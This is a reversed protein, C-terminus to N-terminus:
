KGRKKSKSMEVLRNKAGAAAGKRAGEVINKFQTTNKARKRRNLSNRSLPIYAYPEPKGKKKMDGKAKRSSYESGAATTATRATAKSYGSKVSQAVPRHIGKGGPTYKSSAAGSWGSKMSGEVAKRKRSSGEAVDDAAEDSEDSEDYVRKKAKDAFGEIEDASDDEDSHREDMKIIIRGDAATKFGRNPKKVKKRGEADTTAAATGPQSSTIKNMVDADALDVIMDPDERIYTDPNTRAKDKGGDSEADSMDSDSDALIDDIRCSFVSYIM